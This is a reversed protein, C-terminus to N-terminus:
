KRQWVGGKRIVPTGDSAKGTTGEPIDIVAQNVPGQTEPLMIQSKVGAKIKEWRDPDSAIVNQYGAALTDMNADVIYQDVKLLENIDKNLQARIGPQDLLSPDATIKTKFDALRDWYTGYGMQRINQEHPVGGQMIAAIDNTVAAKEATTYPNKVLLLGRMARANNQGLTGILSGRTANAPNVQRTLNAWQIGMLREEKPNAPAPMLTKLDSMDKGVLDGKQLKPSDAPLSQNIATLFMPEIKADIRETGHETIYQQAQAAAQADFEGQPNMENNGGPGVGVKANHEQIMKQTDVAISQITHIALASPMGKLYPYKEALEPMVVEFPSADLTDKLQQRKAQYLKGPIALGAAAGQMFAALPSMPGQGAVAQAGAAAGFIANEGVDRVSGRSNQLDFIAKKAQSSQASYGTPIESTIDTPDGAGKASDAAAAGLEQNDNAM